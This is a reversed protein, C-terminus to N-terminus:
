AAFFSGHICKCLSIIKGPFLACAACINLYNCVKKKKKKKKGLNAAFLDDAALTLDDETGAM